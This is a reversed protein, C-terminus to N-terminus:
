QKKNNKELHKLEKMEEKSNQIRRDPRLRNKRVKKKLSLLPLRGPFFWSKQREIKKPESFVL